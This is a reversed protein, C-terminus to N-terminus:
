VPLDDIFGASFQLIISADVANVMGDQNVDAADECPLEDLLGATFQLVFAADIANTQGDCNADGSGAPPGTPIPTPTPPPPGGSCNLRLELNLAPPPITLVVTEASTCGAKEARVKYFGAIVDWHFFGEADTLDPNTRNSPSMIESGDPVAEFPGASSDSHLLTVTAGEVPDGNEDLVNGSPDIYVDAEIDKDVGAGPCFIEIHLVAPGHQPRLPPITGKFLGPTATPNMNGSAIVVGEKILEWTGSGGACNDNSKTIQTNTSWNIVPAGTSTHSIGQVTTDPPLPRPRLLKFNYDTLGQNNGLDFLENVDPFLDPRDAPPGAVGNYTGAPLGAVSYDGNANTTTTSCVAPVVDQRCIQVPAGALPENLGEVNQGMVRGSVFGGTPAAGNRVAFIYRGTVSSGRSGATLASTGTDIFSGPVASGPLELSATSGNSYGVRASFGGLGDTGGSAGGTEWQVQNYNFIIDFDGPGQDARDVLLLQFSNLKDTRSNFYGVNVWNVCFAPRGGFTTAGYQVLGSGPGRTDVDAFFPAIIARTTTVINDPTYHGLAADFTVNGNNNVYLASYSTGFFNISSPLNVLSTSGDDNADLTNTTCGSLGKVAAAGAADGDDALTTRDGAGALLALALAVAALSALTVLPIRKIMM